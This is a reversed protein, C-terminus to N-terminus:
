RSIPGNKSFCVLVVFGVSSDDGMSKSDEQYAASLRRVTRKMAYEMDRPFADDELLCVHFNDRLYDAKTM